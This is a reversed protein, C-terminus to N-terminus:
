AVPLAAQIAGDDAFISGFEHDEVAKRLVARTFTDLKDYLSQVLPHLVRLDGHALYSRELYMATLDEESMALAPDLRGLGALRKVFARTSNVRPQENHIHVLGELAITLELWRLDIYYARAANEYRWLANTVRLPPRNAMYAAALRSIAPVDSPNLWNENTRVVFAYPNLTHNVNAIIQRAGNVWERVRAAYEFGISTPHVLRSLAVCTLLRTDPDLSPGENAPPETPKRFFGYPCGFQRIPEFNEHRPDCANMVADSFDIEVPGITVEPIVEILSRFWELPRRSKDDHQSYPDRALVVDTVTPEGETIFM